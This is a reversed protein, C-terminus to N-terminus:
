GMQISRKEKKYSQNPLSKYSQPSYFHIFNTKGYRLPLFKIEMMSCQKCQILNGNFDPPINRRNMQPPLMDTNSIDRYEPIVRSSIRPSYFTGCIFGLDSAHLVIEKDVEIITFVRRKM